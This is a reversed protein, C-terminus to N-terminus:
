SIYRGESAATTARSKISKLEHSSLHSVLPKSHHRSSRRHAKFYCSTMLSICNVLSTSFLVYIIFGYFQIINFILLVSFVTNVFLYM